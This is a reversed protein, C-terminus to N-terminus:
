RGQYNRAEKDRRDELSDKRKLILLVTLVTSVLDLM